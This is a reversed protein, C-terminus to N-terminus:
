QVCINSLLYHRFITCVNSNLLCMGIKQSQALSPRFICHHVRQRRRRVGFVMSIVRYKNNQDAEKYANVFTSM